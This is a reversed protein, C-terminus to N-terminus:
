QRLCSDKYIRPVRPMVLTCLEYDITGAKQALEKFRIEETGQRGVATVEAGVSVPGADTIDLMTMDMTVNGLVRCRKGNVLMQAKNSLARLYGDGYGVPVTAVKLPKDAIFSRNYSISGGAPVDKVYVVRTKVSMVPRFGDQLGFSNHGTRVMDCYSDARFLIAPSAAMHCHNIHIKNLNVNTMTDRFYGIQEETFAPDTDVSSLHTFLGDLIVNPDAALEKIINVVGGRRTGIRGMGTDQKVHCLAKKGLKAAAEKVARAADMSAVTIAIDHKIAYEFADFPYISGLVLVPLTVGAERLQLAEEVSATGFFQALGHKQTYLGLEAAGHGYANAKLVQLIKVDSGVLVRVKKLNEAYANLDIEAWTPRLLPMNM